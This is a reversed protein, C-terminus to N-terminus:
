QITVPAYPGAGTFTVSYTANSGSQANLQLNTIIAKGGYYTGGTSTPKWYEQTASESVNQNGNIDFNGAKGFVLDVPQMTLMAARLTEYGDETDQEVYM